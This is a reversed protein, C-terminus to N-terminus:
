WDQNSTFEIILLFRSTPIIILTCSSCVLSRDKKYCSSSYKKNSGDLRKKREIKKIKISQKEFLLSFRISFSIRSISLILRYLFRQIRIRSICNRSNSSLNRNDSYLLRPRPALMREAERRGCACVRSLKNVSIHARFQLSPARAFATRLSLYLLLSSLFPLLLFSLLLSFNRVFPPTPLSSLFSIRNSRFRKEVPYRLTSPDRDPRNTVPFFNKATVNM